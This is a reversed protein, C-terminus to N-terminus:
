SSLPGQEEVVRRRMMGAFMFRGMIKAGTLWALRVGSRRAALLRPALWAAVTEPRDGLINFVAVTKARREVDQAALSQMVFDTIMIGPSIAGVKLMSGSGRAEIALARWLYAIGRKATGYVSLGPRVRGDSGHGEVFWLWGGAAGMAAFAAKAALMPGLLDTRLVGEMDGGELEWVLGPAQNVGANAIWIDIGGMAAVAEGSLRAVDEWVGSDGGGAFVSSGSLASIEIAAARAAELARGTIFVRAGAKSLELALCRGLGRTGGSIFVRRHDSM